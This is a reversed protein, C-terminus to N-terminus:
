GQDRDDRSGGGALPPLLLGMCLVDEARGDLV